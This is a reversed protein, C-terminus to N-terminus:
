PAGSLRELLSRVDLGYRSDAIDGDVQAIFVDIAAEVEADTLPAGQGAEASDATDVLWGDATRRIGLTRVSSGTVEYELADGTPMGGARWLDLAHALELVPFEIESYITHGCLCIEFQETVLRLLWDLDDRLEGADSHLGHFRFELLSM